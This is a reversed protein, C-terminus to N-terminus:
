DGRNGPELAFLLRRYPRWLGPLHPFLTIGEATWDVLFAGQDGFAEMMNLEQVITMTEVDIIALVPDSGGPSYVQAFNAVFQTGDPSFPGITVADATMTEPGDIVACCTGAMLDAM